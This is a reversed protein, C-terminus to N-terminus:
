DNERNDNNIEELYGKVIEPRTRWSVGGNAGSYGKFIGKKFIRTLIGKSKNKPKIFYGRNTPKIDVIEIVKSPSAGLIFFDNNTALSQTTFEFDDTKYLSVDFRLDIGKETKNWMFFSCPVHYDDEGILFSDKPLPVIKQLKYEMPFVKQLTYKNYVDPLIFAITKANLELAHKIFLQSLFNRKGFPPNGIVLLNNYEQKPKFTLWDAKIIKSSDPEIDLAILNSHTINNSFIGNGASPEIVLDYKYYNVYSLCIDAVAKKTYFKDKDIKNSYLLEEKM